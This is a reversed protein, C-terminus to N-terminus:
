GAPSDLCYVSNAQVYRVDTRDWLVAISRDPLVGAIADIFEWYYDVRGGLSEFLEVDDPTIPRTFGVSLRVDYRTADPVDRVTIWYGELVLDPIRSLVMRARVAPVHFSYLVRGGHSRVLDIDDSTPEEWPGESTGRGFFVDVTAWENRGRLHAFGDGQMGAGPYKACPTAIYDGVTLRAPDLSTDPPPLEYDDPAVSLDAAPAAPADCAPALILGVAVALLSMRTLNAM